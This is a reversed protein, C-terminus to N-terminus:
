KKITFSKLDAANSVKMFSENKPSNNSFAIAKNITTDYKLSVSQDSSGLAKSVTVDNYASSQVGAEEAHFIEFEDFIKTIRANRSQERATM